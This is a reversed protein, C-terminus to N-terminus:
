GPGPGGGGGYDFDAPKPKSSAGGFRYDLRLQVQRSVPYDRLHEVLTPTVLDRRYRNTGALDQGTVTLSIRDNITHRWGANLVFYPAQVGQAQLRAGGAQANLQLLDDKRAQWNLNARGSASYLSRKGLGTQLPGADIQNWYPSLSLNYTIASTLKGNTTLDVGVAQGRGLNGFSYLFGGNGVDTILQAADDKFQRYYLTASYSAGGSHQEYGLEYSRTQKPKLDPNGRIFDQPGQTLLLPNLLFSPPRQVRVSYSASLKRDDDLKYGLHLTPYASQYHQSPRAGSTLQNLDFQLDELRLGGQFDLDGFAHQYTAYVAQATQKFLYHNDLNPQDVLAAESPGLFIAYPYDNDEHRVEYGAKVSGGALPRAYAIRLESHHVNGDNRFLELPATQGVPLIYTTADLFHDRDITANYVADVSLSENEAFSHKWGASTSTGTELFRRHGHFDFISTPQGTPGYDTYFDDPHGYFLLQTYSVEGTFQDKDSPTFTATVRATPGRQLNRGIGQDVTDLFQHSIPDLGDREDTNHSKNRQYNGSFAATVALTKSNYGLNLGARKLGATSATFYASGTMGAGRSKKTILNIVGGSGEPTLAASPNTIVEVREIQDAPLNQLATARDAGEFAPSPKGDVLITVNTDGRVSLNGQLDVEVAPVNRLADAISGTQAQLDKSLTYSKADLTSKEDPVLGTVTVEEVTKTGPDAKAAPKAPTKQASKAAAAPAPKAPDPAAPSSASTQASAAAPLLALAFGM